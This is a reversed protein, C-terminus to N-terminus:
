GLNVNLNNNFSTLTAQELSPLGNGTNGAIICSCTSNLPPPTGGGGPYNPFNYSCNPPLGYDLPNLSINEDQNQLLSKLTTKGAQATALLLGITILTSKM